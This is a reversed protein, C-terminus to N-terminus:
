DPNILNIKIFRVPQKLSWDLVEISEIDEWKILGISLNTNDIFGENNIQIGPKTYFLRTFIMIFSFLSVLLGVSGVIFLIEKSRTYRYISSQSIEEANFILFIGSLIFIICGILGLFLSKKSLPIKM